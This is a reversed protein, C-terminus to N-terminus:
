ETRLAVMPDIKMARRAPLYCGIFAVSALVFMVALFVPVSSPALGYLVRGIVRTLVAAALSGLVIGILTLKFGDHIVLGLISSRQAGLAMRIGVERTRQSVVYSVVGYIGMLALLLGLMGQVGALTAGMRLPMLAFASERLHEEMTRLNYIPLHPDLDSLVKRLLPGVAAPDAATRVHITVPSTPNQLLPVYFFPRPEEGLMVYKGTQVVGVVQWFEGSHGWRFRRGLPDRGPWFREAMMTNILAVKPASESDHPTFDRGQLLPTGMTRLYKSDIRNCHVATFSQPDNSKEESAAMAIEFGYDFPVTMAITSAKVGALGNVRETLERWFQKSKAHDYGELGLDLSAMVMHDTRFGVDMRAVQQLTRVFLGGAVLVVLCIAVQSVVLGSRFFHRKSALVSLGGEKLTTQLDMKTARLAPALGTIIGALTSVLFTFALVRWDFHHEPQIPMNDGSPSFRSLLQGAWVSMIFGVIGALVALLVSESLLQLIMRSRTAGLASRIAMERQRLLARSFMLNAVNACSILLVLLVMLMFVSSILPMLESFTPEPRCHREPMVFVKAEKHDIPFEKSLRKAVVEVQARAQALTAEPKLRAFVKFAAAGRGRLLEEGGKRVQGMMSAPVFAHVALSWQASAFGEPTIGIITFPNGNIHITRGIASPDSGFKRKWYNHSLVVVANGGPKSDEDSQFFRGYAPEIGLMKFYNASTAEIWGREPEQGPASLHVPNMFTAIADEFAAVHERYDQYDLWSHGHPMKWIASKQLVMVLRDPNKVPLPQFFFASIMGFITINATIGLALTLVAVATFGPNKLLMRVAYRLNNM